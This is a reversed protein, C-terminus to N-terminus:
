VPGIVETVVTIETTSLYLATTAEDPDNVLFNQRLVRLAHFRERTEDETCVLGRLAQHLVRDSILTNRVRRSLLSLRSIGSEESWDSVLCQVIVGYHQIPNPDRPFTGMEAEGAISWDIPLVAVAHGANLTHIPRTQVTVHQEPPVSDGNLKQDLRVAVLSVVNAPFVSEPDTDPATM